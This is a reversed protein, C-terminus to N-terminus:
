FFDRYDNILKKFMLTINLKVMRSSKKKHVEGKSNDESEFYVNLYAETYKAEARM